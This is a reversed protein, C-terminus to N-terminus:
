DDIFIFFYSSGVLSKIQMAGCVDIHVLELFDREWKDRNMPFENTHQKGLTCGDCEVHENKFVQIGKVM